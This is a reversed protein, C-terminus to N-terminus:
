SGAKKDPEYDTGDGVVLVNEPAAVGNLIVVSCHKELTSKVVAITSPAQPKEWWLILTDDVCMRLVEPSRSEVVQKEEPGLSRWVLVLLFAAILFLLFM